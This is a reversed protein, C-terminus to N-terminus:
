KKFFGFEEFVKKEVNSIDLDVFIELDKKTSTNNEFAKWNSKENCTFNYNNKFYNDLNTNTEM